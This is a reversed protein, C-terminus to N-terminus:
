GPHPEPFVFVRTPALSARVGPRVFDPLATRPFDAEFVEGRDSRCEARLVAGKLLVDAVTVALGPGGEPALATEYPRFRGTAPGAVTTPNAIPASFGDFVAQGNDVRCPLRNSDGLFDFVFTTAPAAALEEPAGIQEIRGANLLAVRDALDMAEEQDHTVFVTTVGTERHIRRLERRLEKRVKADLAGFPEDLLLMRPEIALARALAVRQMQGGSLQAPYRKELGELQVLSLLKTVRERIELRSPREASARVRLGYAINKDVTMHNFLAYHQFVMGVRRERPSLRLFDEGEFVVRGRDPRELGALVRLLTTKGSGSPGLLALFEGKPAQLTVDNLAATRGFQKAVNEVALTM